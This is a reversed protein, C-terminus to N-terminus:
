RRTRRASAGAEVDIVRLSGDSAKYCGNITGDAGPITAYAIEGIAALAAGVLVAGLRTM